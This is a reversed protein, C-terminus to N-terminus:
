SAGLANQKSHQNFLTCLTNNDYIWVYSNPHKEDLWFSLERAVERPLDAFVVAQCAVSDLTLKSKVGRDELWGQLEAHFSIVGHIEADINGELPLMRAVLRTKVWEALGSMGSQIELEREARIPRWFDEYSRLFNWLPSVAEPLKGRLEELQEQTREFLDQVERFPEYGLHFYTLLRSHIAQARTKEVGAADAEQLFVRGLDKLPSLRGYPHFYTDVTRREMDDRVRQITYDVTAQSYSGHTKALDLAEASPM